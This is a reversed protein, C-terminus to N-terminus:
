DRPSPSTYLLCIHFGDFAGIAASLSLQPSYDIHPALYLRLGRATTQLQLASFARRVRMLPLALERLYSARVRVSDISEDM